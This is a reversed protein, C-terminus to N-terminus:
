GMEEREREFQHLQALRTKIRLKTAEGADWNVFKCAQTFKTLFV